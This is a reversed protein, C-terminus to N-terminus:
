LEIGKIVNEWKSLFSRREAAEKPPASVDERMSALRRGKMRQASVWKRLSDCCAPCLDAGPLIIAPKTRQTAGAAGWAARAVIDGVSVGDGCVNCRLMDCIERSM